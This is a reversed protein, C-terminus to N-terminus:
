TRVQYAEKYNVPPFSASSYSRFMPDLSTSADNIRIWARRGSCLLEAARSRAQSKADAVVADELDLLVVDAPSSAVQGFLDSTNASVLLWSRAYKFTVRLSPTPAIRTHPM